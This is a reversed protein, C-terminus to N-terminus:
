MTNLLAKHSPWSLHELTWFSISLFISFSLGSFFSLLKEESGLSPSSGRHNQMEVQSTSTVHLTLCVIVELLSTEMSLNVNDDHIARM